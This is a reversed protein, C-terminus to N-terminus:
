LNNYPSNYSEWEDSFEKLHKLIEERGMRKLINYINSIEDVPNKALPEYQVGSKFFTKKVSKLECERQAMRLWEEFEANLVDVIKKYTEDEGLAKAFAAKTKLENWRTLIKGTPTIPIAM